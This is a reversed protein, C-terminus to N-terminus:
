SFRPITIPKTNRFNPVNQLRWRFDFGQFLVKETVMIFRLNLESLDVPESEDWIKVSVHSINVTDYTCVGCLFFSLLMTFIFEWPKMESLFKDYSAIREKM